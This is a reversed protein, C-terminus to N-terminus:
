QKVGYAIVLVRLVLPPRHFYNAFIVTWPLSRSRNAPLIKLRVHAHSSLTNGFITRLPFWLLPSAQGYGQFPLKRNQFATLMPYMGISLYRVSFGHADHPDSSIFGPTRSQL